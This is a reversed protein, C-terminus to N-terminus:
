EVDESKTGIDSCTNISTPLCIPHRESAIRYYCDWYVIDGTFHVIHRSLMLEQLAWGRALLPAKKLVKEYSIDNSRTIFLGGGSGSAGTAAITLLSHRGM